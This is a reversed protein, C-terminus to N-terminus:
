KSISNLIQTYNALADQYTQSNPKLAVAKELYQQSLKLTQINKIQVAKTRLAIGMIYLAMDNTPDEDIAQNLNSIAHEVDERTANQTQLYQNGLGAYARSMNIRLAKDDHAAASKKLVKLAGEYNQREILYDAYENEEWMVPWVEVLKQYMADVKDWNKLQDYQVILGQLARRKWYRNPAQSLIQNFLKESEDYRGDHRAIKAKIYLTDLSNPFKTQIITSYKFDAAFCEDQSVNACEIDIKTYYLEPLDQSIKEAIAINEKAKQVYEPLINVQDYNPDGAVLAARALYVFSLAHDPHEKTDKEIVSQAKILEGNNGHYNDIIDKADDLSMEAPTPTSSIVTIEDSSVLKHKPQPASFYTFGVYVCIALVYLFVVIMTNRVHMYKQGESVYNDSIPTKETPIQNDM